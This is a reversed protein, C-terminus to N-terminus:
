GVSFSLLLPLILCQLQMCNIKLFCHSRPSSRGAEDADTRVEEEEGVFVNEIAEELTKGEAKLKDEVRKKIDNKKVTYDFLGM